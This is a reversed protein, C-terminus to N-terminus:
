GELKVTYFHPKLPDFSYPRTKKISILFLSRCPVIVCNFYAVCLCLLVAVSTGSQFTWCFFNSPLPTGLSTKCSWLRARIESAAWFM